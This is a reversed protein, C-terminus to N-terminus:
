WCRDHGGLSGYATLSSKGQMKEQIDRMEKEIKAISEATTKPDRRAEFYEFRKNHLDKRLDVTEDLFKQDHKFGPGGRGMVQEGSQGSMM